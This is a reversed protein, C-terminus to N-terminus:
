RNTLAAILRKWLMVWIPERAKSTTGAAQPSVAPEPEAIIVGAGPATQGFYQWARGPLNDGQQER